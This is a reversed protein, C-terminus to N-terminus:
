NLKGKLSDVLGTVEEHADIVADLITRANEAGSACSVILGACIISADEPDLGREEFFGILEVVHRWADGEEMETLKM